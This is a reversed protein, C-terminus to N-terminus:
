GSVSNGVVPAAVTAPAAQTIADIQDSFNFSVSEPENPFRAGFQHMLEDVVMQKNGAVLLAKSLGLAFEDSKKAFDQRDAHSWDSDFSPLDNPGKINGRLIVKSLNEAVNLTLADDRDNGAKAHMNDFLVVAMAMLSISSPGGSIWTKDRWSKLYRCVRRLAPGHTRVKDEFWDHLNKPDSAKWDEARHALMIDSNGLRQDRGVSHLSGYLNATTRLSENLRDELQIKINTFAQTEVAFIPLDIHASHEPLNVRICTDKRKGFKWGESQILPTLSKQIISFLGSSAFLPRGDIFPMPFYIGDDIDIEQTNWYPRVLTQYAHSGQTLFRVDMLDTKKIKQQFAEGRNEMLLARQVEDRMEAQLNRFTSRLASRIKSRSNRLYSDEPDGGVIHINKNFSNRRKLGRFLPAANAKTM